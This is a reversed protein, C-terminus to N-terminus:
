RAWCWTAGGWVHEFNIGRGNWNCVGLFAGIAGLIAGIMGATVGGIGTWSTFEAAIAAAGAGAWFLKQLKGTAYNDIWITWGWWHRHVGGHRSSKMATVNTNFAAIGTDSSATDKNAQTIAEQVVKVQSPDFQKAPLKLTFSDSSANYTVYQDFTNVVAPTMGALNDMLYPSGSSDTMVKYGSSDASVASVSPDQVAIASAALDYGTSTAAPTAANAVSPAVMGIACVSAVAVAAHRLRM